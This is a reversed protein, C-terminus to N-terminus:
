TEDEEEHLGHATSGDDDEDEPEKRNWGDTLRCAATAQCCGGKQQSPQVAMTVAAEGM